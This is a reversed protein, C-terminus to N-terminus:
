GWVDVFELIEAGPAAIPTGSVDLDAWIMSDDNSEDPDAWRPGSAMVMEVEDVMGNNLHHVFIDQPGPSCPFNMQVFGEFQSIGEAVIEYSDVGPRLVQRHITIIGKRFLINNVIKGEPAQGWVGPQRTTSTIDVVGGVTDWAVEYFTHYEDMYWIQGSPKM